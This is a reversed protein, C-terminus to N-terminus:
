DIHSHLCKLQITQLHLELWNALILGTQVSHSKKEKHVRKANFYFILTKRKMSVEYVLFASHCKIVKGVPLLVIKNEKESVM